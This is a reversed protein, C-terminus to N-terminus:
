FDLDEEMNEIFIDMFRRSEFFIDDVVCKYRFFCFKFFFGKCDTCVKILNDRRLINRERMLLKKKNGNIFM